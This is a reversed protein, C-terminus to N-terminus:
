PNRRIEKRTGLGAAFKRRVDHIQQTFLRARSGDSRLLDLPHDCNNVLLEAGYLKLQLLARAFGDHYQSGFKEIGPVYFSRVFSRAFTSSDNKKGRIICISSFPVIEAFLRGFYQVFIEIRM